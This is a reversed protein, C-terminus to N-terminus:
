SNCKNNESLDHDSNESACTVSFQPSGATEQEEKCDAGNGNEKNQSEKNKNGEKHNEVPKNVAKSKQHEKQIDSIRHQSLLNQIKAQVELATCLSMKKLQLAVIKGFLDFEDDNNSLLTTINKLDKVAGRIQESLDEDDKDRKRRKILPEFCVSNAQEDALSVASDHQVYLPMEGELPEPMSNNTEEASESCAQFYFDNQMTQPPLNHFKTQFM